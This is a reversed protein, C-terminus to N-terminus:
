IKIPNGLTARIVNVKNANPGLAHILSQEFKNLNDIDVVMWWFDLRKFTLKAASVNGYGKVHDSFRKNLDKSQGVYIATYLSDIAEGLGGFYKTQACIIYIGSNKM